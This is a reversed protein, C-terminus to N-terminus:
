DAELKVFSALLLELAILLIELLAFFALFLRAPKSLSFTNVLLLALPVPELALLEVGELATEPLGLVLLLAISLANFLYRSTTLLM